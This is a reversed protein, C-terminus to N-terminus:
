PLRKKHPNSLFTSTAYAYNSSLANAADTVDASAVSAANAIDSSGQAIAQSAVSQANNIISNVDQAAILAPLAVLIYASRM